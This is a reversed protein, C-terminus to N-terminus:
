PRASSVPLSATTPIGLYLVGSYAAQTDSSLEVARSRAQGYSGLPMPGCTMPQGSCAWTEGGEGPANLTVTAEAPLHGAMPLYGGRWSVETRMAHVNGVLAVVTANKRAASRVLEAMAQEYEVPSPPSAFNSPQFAVVSVIAGTSRLQRLTEFLQFYAESSRGDKMPSNWFPVELFEQRAEEGGDSAMFRDIAAQESSPVELAVVVADRAQATLCVADAFIDPTENNGHMEGIIVWRVREDALVQEWGSIPTCYAGPSTAAAAVLLSSLGLLLSM